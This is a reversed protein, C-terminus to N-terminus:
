SNISYFYGWGDNFHLLCRAKVTVKSLLLDSLISLQLLQGINFIYGPKSTYLISINSSQLNYTKYLVGNFFSLQHKGTKFHKPARVFVLRSNNGKLLYPTQKYLFKRKTLESRSNKLFFKYHLIFM